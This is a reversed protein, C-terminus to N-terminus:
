TNKTCKYAYAPASYRIYIYRTRANYRREGRAFRSSLVICCLVIIAISYEIAM